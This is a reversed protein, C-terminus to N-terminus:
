RPETQAEIEIARAIRVSTKAIETIRKDELGSFRDFLAAAMAGAISSASQILLAREM